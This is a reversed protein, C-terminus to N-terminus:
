QRKERVLSTHVLRDHESLELQQAIHWRALAVGALKLPQEEVHPLEPQPFLNSWPAAPSIHALIAVLLPAGMSHPQGQSRLRRRPRARPGEFIIDDEIIEGDSDAPM